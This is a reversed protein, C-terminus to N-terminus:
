HLIGTENKIVSLDYENVIDMIVGYGEGQPIREGKQYDEANDVKITAQRNIEEINMTNTGHIHPSLVM